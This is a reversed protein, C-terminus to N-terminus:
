WEFLSELSVAENAAKKKPKMKAGIAARICVSMIHAYQVFRARMLGVVASHYAHLLQNAKKCFGAAKALATNDQKQEGTKGFGKTKMDNIKKIADDIAKKQTTYATSLDKKETNGFVVDKIMAFHKKIDAITADNKTSTTMEDKVKNSIGKADEGGLKEALVDKADNLEYLPNEGNTASNKIVGIANAVAKYAKKIEEVDINYLTFSGVKKDGKVDDLMSVEIKGITADSVKKALKSFHYKAKQKQEEFWRAVAAFWGQIKQWMAKLAGIFKDALEKVGETVVEASEDISGNEDVFGCSEIVAFFDEDVSEMVYMSAEAFNQVYDPIVNVPTSNELYDTM